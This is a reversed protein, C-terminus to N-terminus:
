HNKSYNILIFNWFEHWNQLVDKHKKKILKIKKYKIKKNIASKLAHSWDFISKPNIYLVKEYNGVTEHAYPLDSVLIPINFNKAETLPLGWTELLSPFVLYDTKRYIKIIDSYNQKGIFKIFEHSSWKKYIYKSYRNEKGDITVIFEIKKKIQLELCNIAKCILEINKFVRPFTPYFLIIKDKKNESFFIDNNEKKLCNMTNPQSVIVNKLDFKKIFIKKIWLQQVFVYDNKKINILYFFNYFINFLFFIPQIIIEKLKLKYFPAPNHCYLLKMKSKINPSIDHMSVWIDPRLRKSLFYFYIYEYYLRLLWSKKSNPFCVKKIRKNVFFKKNHTLAIINWEKNFIEVSTNISDILVKRIGGETMNIGSIILIKKKM